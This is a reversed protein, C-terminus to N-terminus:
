SASTRQFTSAQSVPWTTYDGSVRLFAFAALGGILYPHLWYAKRAWERFPSTIPIFAGGDIGAPPFGAANELTAPLIWICGIPTPRDRAQGQADTITVMTNNFSANVHAVGSTINKRERRKVRTPEKAM